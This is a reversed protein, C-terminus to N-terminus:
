LREYLNWIFTQIFAAMFSNLVIFKILDISAGNLLIFWTVGWVSALCTICMILPKSWYFKFKLMDIEDQAKLYKNSDTIWQLLEKKSEIKEYLGEFPKRLFSLIQNESTVIRLGLCFGVTCFLTFLFQSIIM